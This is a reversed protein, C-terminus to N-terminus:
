SPCIKLVVVGKYGPRNDEGGGAGFGEGDVLSRIPPRRGDVVVGGAGSGDSSVGANGPNLSVGCM